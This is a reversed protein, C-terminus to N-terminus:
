YDQTAEALERVTEVSGFLKVLKAATDQCTRYIAEAKRSDTDYGLGLAWDEFTIPGDLFDGCDMALSSLVDIM